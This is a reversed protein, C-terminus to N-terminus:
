NICDPFSIDITNYFRIPPELLTAPHLLPPLQAAGAPVSWPTAFDDMVMVVVMMM